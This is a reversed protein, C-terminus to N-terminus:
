DKLRVLVQKAWRDLTSDGPPKERSPLEKLAVILDKGIKQVQGSGAPPPGHVRYKAVVAAIAAERDAHGEAAGAVPRKPKEEAADPAPETTGGGRRGALRKAEDAWWRGLADLSVELGRIADWFPEDFLAYAELPLSLLKDQDIQDLEVEAADWEQQALVLELATEAREPDPVPSGDPRPKPRGLGGLRDDRFGLHHLARAIGRWTCPYAEGDPEILWLGGDDFVGRWIARWLALEITATPLGPEHRAIWAVAQRRPLTEPRGRGPNDGADATM